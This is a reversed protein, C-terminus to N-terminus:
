QMQQLGENARKVVQTCRLAQPENKLIEIAKAIMQEAKTAM